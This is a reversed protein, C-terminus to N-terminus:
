PPCTCDVQSIGGVPTTWTIQCTKACGGAFCEISTNGNPAEVFIVACATQIFPPVGGTCACSWEKNGNPQKIGNKTVCTLDEDACYGRCEGLILQGTEVVVHVDRECTGHEGDLLVLQVGGTLASVAFAAATLKLIM